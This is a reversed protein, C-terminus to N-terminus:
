KVEKLTVKYITIKQLDRLAEERTYPPDVAYMYDKITEEVLERARKLTKCLHSQTDCDFEFEGDRNDSVHVAYAIM